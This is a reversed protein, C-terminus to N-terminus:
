GYTKWIQSAEEWIHNQRSSSVCMLWIQIHIYHCLMLSM